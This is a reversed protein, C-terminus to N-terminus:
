NRSLLLFGINEKTFGAYPPPTIENEPKDQHATLYPLDAREYLDIAKKVGPLLVYNISLADEQDQFLESLKLARNLIFRMLLLERTDKAELISEQIVRTLEKRKEKWLIVLGILILPLDILYIM